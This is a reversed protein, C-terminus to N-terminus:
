VRAQIQDDSLNEIILLIYLDSVPSTLRNTSLCTNCSGEPFSIKVSGKENIKFEQESKPSREVTTKIKRTKFKRCSQM